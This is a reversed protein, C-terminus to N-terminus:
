CIALVLEAQRTIGFAEIRRSSEAADTALTRAEDREGTEVLLAALAARSAAQYPLATMREHVVLSHRLREEAEPFAGLRHEVIGQYYSKALMPQMSSTYVDVPIEAWLRRAQVLAQQDSLGVAVLTYPVLGLAGGVFRLFVDTRRFTALFRQAPGADGRCLQIWVWMAEVIPGGVDARLADQLQEAESMDGRLWGLIAAHHARSNLALHRFESAGAREADAFLSAARSLDGDLIAIHGQVNLFISRSADSLKEGDNFKAMLARLAAGDAMVVLQEGRSLTYNWISEVGHAPSLVALEDLARAYLPHDYRPNVGTWFESLVRHRGAVDAHTDVIELAQRCLALRENVPAVFLSLAALKSLLAAHDITGAPCRDLATRVLERGRHDRYVAWVAHAGGFSLAAAILLDDEGNAQALQGALVAADLSSTWLGAGNFACALEVLVETHARASSEADLLEVARQLHHAAEEFGFAAAAQAAARRCWSVAVSADGLRGAESWHHALQALVPDSDPHMKELAVAVDRHLQARRTVTLQDYLAERTVAHTFRYTIGRGPEQEILHAREAADLGDLVSGACAARVLDLDFSSGIVAGIALATAAEAPLRSVRHAIVETVGSPPHDPSGGESLHRRLETMFYPNGGTRSVLTRALVEDGVLFEVDAVALGSLRLRRVGDLRHLEVLLPTLPDPANGEPDRHNALLLLPLEPALRLLHVFLLMSPRGAWQLDDVIWLVPGATTMGRLLDVVAGFLQYREGEGAKGIRPLLHGLDDASHGAWLRVAEAGVANTLHDLAEVVPQYPLGMDEEAEGFLVTGGSAHIRRAFEAALRTKGAGPEAAVLVLQRQGARAMTWARDLEALEATRGVFPTDPTTRLPTPLAVISTAPAAEWIVRSVEVPEALGRLEIPGLPEFIHGGRGGALARVLDVVLIESPAARAVLRAAEIVPRGFCDGENWTLDGVSVGVRVRRPSTRQVAVAADLADAAAAFSALLGDGVGKVVWGGRAAVLQAVRREEEVTFRDAEDEGHRVRQETSAVLDTFLIANTARGNRPPM